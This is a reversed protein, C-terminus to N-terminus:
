LEYGTIPPGTNAPMNWWVRMETDSSGPSQLAPANPAGPAEDVDSVRVTVAVSDSDTGDSAIVTIQLIVGEEYDLGTAAAASLRGASSINFFHGAAGGVSWTITDVADGDTATFASGINGPKNEAVKITVSAPGGIVPAQNAASTTVTTGAGSESWGGTGEDNSAQVQVQYATNATLGTITATVGTATHSQPTWASESTKKYQLGYGTVPPGTNTPADWKVILSTNSKAASTVTPAGPQGPAEARDLVEVYIDYSDSDKGDSATLTVFFVRLYTGKISGTDEYNLGTASAVSFQGHGYEATSINFLDGHEGGVSWTIPDYDADDVRITGNNRPRVPGFNGPTNEAITMTKATIIVPPNNPCDPCPPAVKGYGTDSWPGYGTAMERLEACTHRTLMTCPPPPSGVTNVLRVQFAYTDNLLGSHTTAPADADLERIWWSESSKFDARRVRLELKHALPSGLDAFEPLEWTVKVTGRVEDYAASSGIYEVEPADMKGPLAPDEIRVTYTQGATFSTTTKWEVGIGLNGSNRIDADSFTHADNDIHLIPNTSPTQTAPELGLTLRSIASKSSLYQIVYTVGGHEFKTDSLSGYQGAANYGIYDSNGLAATLTACLLDTVVCGPPPDTVTVTVAVSDTNTGDSAIVTIDYSNKIEFDFTVGSALSLQGESIDFSSADTGGVSWTIDDGDPDTATFASGINGIVYEFVSIDVTDPGDIVPAEDVDSVRVTVAVSDTNTGDSAIVTFQLIAGDEYDLGTASAVSLQGASSINFRDAAAGDVSWTISDGEDDTATFASGINGPTNEDVTITVTDPGGIVPLEDMDNTVTVTVAVSDTNTGDSAIVTIDYSNKIEFDLTVGSAPSLQGESIDFSSADTGGVSWTITDDADDDTATFADGINGTTNEAVTITVTDPGGIVPPEDAVDTVTVTVAVSDSGGNGDSAIVTFQLSAGDVEYNLGTDSKVSLQGASSINFRDGAAGGVSWTISDGDDEDAATFASGINGPTNEAVMITVSDPGDIVPPDNADTVTVTVAVSDTNTGDSAIVTFQLIVVDEYDLGTASAVSLQGDSSINFWDRAAGGVSWTITDGADDDTATFASGINGPTNEAVTVAVSAPGGIVPPEDAVDTVTVSVAVSDSGGNGDSAIVTFQLSAGDVEYNLGADSKVSLQGASNINFKIGASGGKSWTIADGDADTASFASGINSPDNEAVTFSVTDPGGIVPADNGAAVSHDSFVTARKNLGQGDAYSAQAALYHALDGAVPTYSASMAGSIPNFTGLETDPDWDSSNFWQWATVSVSGDPDTLSATIETGVALMAPSLTVTGLEDVDTVAVTVNEVDTDTADSVTVTISYANKAEYDFTVGSALSLQGGSSIDFSSADTGGVSWSITDGADLETYEIPGGVAGTTNEDIALGVVSHTHIVPRKNLGTGGTMIGYALDSWAGEGSPNVARVQLEYKKGALINTINKSIGTDTRESTEWGTSTGVVRFRLKYGTIGTGSAVQWTVAFSGPSTRDMKVGGVKGPEATVDTVSVTVAVSATNTGDSAIVTISYSTTTEYDLTVGSALSLQGTSGSILSSGTIAFSSADTGSLSWSITDGVADTATFADGIDGTTNEAVTITQSAGGGIVPAEAEEDHIDNVKVTVRDSEDDTGDSVTVKFTRTAGAEYDLGAASAVSLQGGSSIAFEAADDESLTWTLARSEDQETVLIPDGVAGGTNEDIELGYISKTHIVPRFNGGTASKIVLYFYDSWESLGEANEARLRFEVKKGASGSLVVITPSKTKFPENLGDPNWAPDPDEASYYHVGRFQMWHKSFLPPGTNTPDDYRLEVKSGDIDIDKPQVPKGPPEAVDTVTVTVAVSDESTGDSAIVTLSRTPRDSAGDEYNLGDASAVSLQGSSIAFEAADTGGVSWTIADGDPDTASFADGLNGPTNEAVDITVSDPGGIVPPTNAAIRM